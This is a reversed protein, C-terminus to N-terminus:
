SNTPSITDPLQVSVPIIMGVQALELAVGVRATGGTLNVTAATIGSFSPNGQFMGQLAKVVDSAAFDAVSSGVVLPFGFSPHQLLTGQRISFALRVNQIINNIGVAWKTDGDPTVILRNDPTLLLDIGGIEILADFENLGPIAGTRFDQERPTQDSPIYITMQSNVTNPLFVHLTANALTKYINLTPDGDLTIFHQTPSITSIKTIHRKTRFQADAQVWATQGVFLNSIDAVVVINGAGNVLLPLDTGLEDVYPTQLGNLAALELWRNADGLYRQAVMELTSGYPFPVPYKSRPITFAIGSRAALGAMQEITTLKSQPDNSNTAILKDMQALVQSMSYLAEFDEDTPTNVSVNMPPEINYTRNYTESGVGLANAFADMTNQIGARRKQFDIRSLKRVKDRDAAIKSTVAPSLHLDAVSVGSFFEFNDAPNEFPANAPHAARSALTRPDDGQEAALSTLNANTQSVELSNANNGVQNFRDVFNNQFNAGADQTSRLELIASKTDKIVADALDAVALPISLADKALLCVERIPEFLTHQVDGGLAIISKRFGQLVRRANEMNTLLRALGSPSLQVPVYKKLIEGTGQELKVRKWAKLSIRYPYELPQQASRPVEFSLPTCLYVSEDKWTCFALRANRGEPTKKLEAYAEFFYQLLRFQYYGTLQGMKGLDLFDEKPIVNPKKTAIANANLNASAAQTRDVQAITGAFITEVFPSSKKVPAEDKGFLVGTTGSINIMRFPAGNHEEVVGGMTATTTIAFPMTFDLSEPPIPLTFTWGSGAKKRYLGNGEAEVVIFQYPRSQNWNGSAITATRIWTKETPLTDSFDNVKALDILTQSTDQGITGTGM